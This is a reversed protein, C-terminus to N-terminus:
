CALAIMMAVVTVHARKAVCSQSRANLKLSVSSQPRSLEQGDDRTVYQEGFVLAAMELVHWCRNGESSLFANFHFSWLKDQKVMTKFENYDLKGDFDLDAAGFAEARAKMMAEFDDEGKGVTDMADAILEPKVGM